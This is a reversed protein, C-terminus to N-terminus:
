NLCDIVVTANEMKKDRGREILGKFRFQGQSIQHRENNHYDFRNISIKDHVGNSDDHVVLGMIFTPPNLILSFSYQPSSGSFQYSNRDPRSSCKGNELTFDYSKDTLEIRVHGRKGKIAEGYKDAISTQKTIKDITNEEKQPEQANNCGSSVLLLGVMSLKLISFARNKLALM